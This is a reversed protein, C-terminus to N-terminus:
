APLGVVVVPADGLDRAMEPRAHLDETQVEVGAELLLGERAELPELGDPVRPIDLAMFVLGPVGDV